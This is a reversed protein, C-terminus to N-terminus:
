FFHGASVEYGFVTRDLIRDAFLNMSTYAQEFLAWFPTFVILPIAMLQHRAKGDLIIAYYVIYL